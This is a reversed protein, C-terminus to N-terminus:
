DRRASRSGGAPTAAVTALERVDAISDPVWAAHLEDRFFRALRAAPWNHAVDVLQALGEALRRREDDSADRRYAAVADVASGHEALVDEHLYGRAFEALTALVHADLSPRPRRRTM